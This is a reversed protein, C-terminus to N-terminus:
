YSSEGEEKFLKEFVPSGTKLIFKHAKVEAKGVGVLFTV